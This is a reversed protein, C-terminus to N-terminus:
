PCLRSRRGSAIVGSSLGANIEIDVVGFVVFLALPDANPRVSVKVVHALEFIAVRRALELKEEFRTLQHRFYCVDLVSALGEGFEVALAAGQLRFAHVHGAALEIFLSFGHAEFLTLPDVVVGAALDAEFFGVVHVDEM